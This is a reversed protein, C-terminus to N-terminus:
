VSKDGIVLKKIEDIYFEYNVNNWDFKSAINCEHVKHGSRITTVREEYISKNKTHIREDWVGEGIEKKVQLYFDDKLSNRRKFDGPTGKPPSKKIMTGGDSSVYYRVTKLMQKGDVYVKSGGPTKYRLMFDFPNSMLHIVDEPAYGLRHVLDIGKQVAMMSFDKNWWGEYDKQTEPFWYAGKRKIKGDVGESMYNNVDRIWMRSYDVEELMLGTHREWERCWYDFFPVMDRKIKVTIGDTNAQILTVTPIMSIREALELLQLQGNVTVSFTYRPDFFPSYPNNSDGYVGNNALKLTANMMTGKPYQKRDEGLQKYHLLFSDGLHQPHFGNAIAVAPYMGAVDIDKIVYDDDSEFYKSEVSAHVGGAGFHFDLGGLKSQLKIHSNNKTNICDLTKGKFWTLVNNFSEQQFKIKPIIISKFEIYQRPTQIPKGKVFCKSRGIKNILYEKGIKVDSYNLVDGRLIGKDLLEKRKTILEMCHGLFKETETIDHVNYTLMHDMQEHTVPLNPDYPLDEVSDSRMAFQLAKLSCRRANNDFHNIKVLDIQPIIRDGLRKSYPNPGGYNQGGIIKDCLQKAKEFGFTHPNVLLEHLIPYDFGLSNFGVMYAGTNKIFSLHSLLETRENKRDSIEFTYIKDEGYFKGAFSFFNRFTELDYTYFKMGATENM